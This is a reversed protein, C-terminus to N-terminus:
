VDRRFFHLNSSYTGKWFPGKESFFRWKGPNLIDYRLNWIRSVGGLKWLIEAGVEEEFSGNSVPRVGALDMGPLTLHNVAREMSYMSEMNIRIFIQSLKALSHFRWLGLSFLILIVSKGIVQWRLWESGGSMLTSNWGDLVIWPTSYRYKHWYPQEQAQFRGLILHNLCVVATRKWPGRTGQPKFKGTLSIKPQRQLLRPIRKQQPSGHTVNRHFNLLKNNIM